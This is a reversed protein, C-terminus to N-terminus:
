SFLSLQTSQMKFNTTMSQYYSLAWAEVVQPVVANGIFKKQQDQPGALYYDEPFGQIRKLETISFMRMYIDKIGYHLMFSQIKSKIDSNEPEQYDNFIFSKKQVVSVLSPPRKNMSAILTFCPKDISSGANKYQPNFLFSVIQFRDKTTLTRSPGNISVISDKAKGNYQIIFGPKVCTILSEHPITTITPASSNLSIARSEPRGTYNSVFFQDENKPCFKKLGAYIRELTKDSLPIKRDFISNGIKHLDLVQKVPKRKPLGNEGNKSHSPKPFVLPLGDKAFLGFYRLRNQHAGYDASNLLKFDYCYGFEKVKNVWEVYYSGKTRHEPVMYPGLKGTKSNLFLPCFEGIDKKKKNIKPVLPGWSLFERVNEIKILDPDIHKIYSFLANALTRSDNDRSGSKANSFHTCELSAWLIWIRNDGKSKRPLKSVDLTRIDEIFHQCNPFNAAHSKIALPDHNVCALVNAINKGNIKASNFGLSTGGAGCFLDIIVFEM